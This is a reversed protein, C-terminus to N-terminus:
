DKAIGFLSKLAVVLVAPAIFVVANSLISTALDGVFPLAAVANASLILAIAALLFGQTEGGTVNLIGVILGLLVLVWIIWPVGTLLAALVALILGGIFAYNGLKDM